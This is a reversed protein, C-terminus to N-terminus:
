EENRKPLIATMLYLNENNHGGNNDFIAASLTNSKSKRIKKKINKKRRKCKSDVDRELSSIAIYIYM